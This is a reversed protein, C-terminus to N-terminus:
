FIWLHLLTVSIILTKIDEYLQKSEKKKMDFFCNQMLHCFVRLVQPLPKNRRVLESLHSVDPENRLNRKFQQKCDLYDPQNLEKATMQLLKFHRETSNQRKEFEKFSRTNVHFEKDAVMQKWKKREEFVSAAEKQLQAGLDKLLCLRLSKFFYDDTGMHIKRAGEEIIQSLNLFGSDIGFMSSDDLFGEYTKPLSTVGNFDLNRDIIIIQNILPPTSSRFPIEARLSELQSQM